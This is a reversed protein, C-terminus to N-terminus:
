LHSDSAARGSISLSMARLRRNLTDTPQSSPTSSGGGSVASAPASLSSVSCCSFMTSSITPRYRAECGLGRDGRRRRTRFIVAAAAATHRTQPRYVRELWSSWSDERYAARCFETLLM